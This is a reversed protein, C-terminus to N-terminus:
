DESVPPCQPGDNEVYDRLWKGDDCSGCSIPLPLNSGNQQWDRYFTSMAVDSCTCPLTPLCLYLLNTLTSLSAPFSTLKTNLELFELSSPLYIGDISTLLTNSLSLRKLNTFRSFADSSIHALQTKRLDIDELSSPFSIGDISTLPTGGLSLRKLNTLQSFADSSITTLPNGYLSLSRLNNSKPDSFKLGSFSTILNRSLGFSELSSPLILDSLTQSDLQNSYIYLTTLSPLSAFAEPDIDRLGNKWFKIYTVQPPFKDEKKIETIPNDQMLLRTQTFDGDELTPISTLGKGRCYITDDGSNVFSHNDCECVKYPCNSSVTVAAFMLLVLM